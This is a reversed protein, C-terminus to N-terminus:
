IISFYKNFYIEKMGPGAKGNTNSIESYPQIEQPAKRVNPLVQATSQSQNIIMSCESVSRGARKAIPRKVTVKSQPQVDRQPVNTDDVNVIDINLIDKARFIFLYIFKM